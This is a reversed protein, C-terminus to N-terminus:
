KSTILILPQIPEGYLCYIKESNKLQCSTGDIKTVILKQSQISYNIADSHSGSTLEFIEDLFTRVYSIVKKGREYDFSKKKDLLETKEIADTGYLADYLSGWRANAANLAYRSNSVPVVLQPGAMKSIETDVNETQIKFNPGEPILYGIEILFNKYEKENIKHGKHHTHWKNIKEQLEIRRNLLKANKPSLDHILEGFGAWFVKKDMSHQSLAEKNIFDHLIKSVSLGEIQIYDTM